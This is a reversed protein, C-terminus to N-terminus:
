FRLRRATLTLPEQDIVDWKETFNLLLSFYCFPNKKGKERREQEKEGQETEPAAPSVSEKACRSKLDNEQSCLKWLDSFTQM